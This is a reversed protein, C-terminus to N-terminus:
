TPNKQWEKVESERWRVGVGGIHEAKPFTGDAMKRYITSRTMGCMDEVASRRLFREKKEEPRDPEADPQITQNPTM